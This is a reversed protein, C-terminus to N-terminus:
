YQSLSSYLRIPFAALELEVGSYMVHNRSPVPSRVYENKERVVLQMPPSFWENFRLLILFLRLLFVNISHM